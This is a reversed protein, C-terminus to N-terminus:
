EWLGDDFWVGFGPGEGPAIKGDMVQPQDRVWTM